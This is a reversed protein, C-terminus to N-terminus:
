TNAKLIEWLLDYAPKEAEGDSLAEPDGNQLLKTSGNVIRDNRRHSEASLFRRHGDKISTITFIRSFVGGQDTSEYSFNRSRELVVRRNPVLVFEILRDAIMGKEQPSLEKKVPAEVSM